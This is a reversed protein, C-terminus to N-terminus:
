RQKLHLMCIKRFTKNINHRARDSYYQSGSRFVIINVQGTNMSFYLSESASMWKEFIKCDIEYVSPCM